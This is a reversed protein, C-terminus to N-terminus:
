RKRFVVLYRSGAWGDERSVVEFGQPTVLEILREQGICHCDGGFAGRQPYDIVALLGGPKLARHLTATTFAPDSFHHYVERMFVADCCGEPLRSEREGAELVTVNSLKADAVARKVDALRAPDLETAYLHGQPVRAAMEVALDGRGAGVEALVTASGVRLVQTLRRAEDPWDDAALTRCGAVLVLVGIALMARRRSADERGIELM